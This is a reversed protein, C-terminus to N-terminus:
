GGSYRTCGAPRGLRMLCLGANWHLTWVASEQPFERVTNEFSELARDVQRELSVQIFVNVGLQVKHPDLLTVHRQIVGAEELARVRALCPSPSLHVRRALEVDFAALAGWAARVLGRRAHGATLAALGACEAPLAPTWYRSIMQFRTALYLAALAAPWALM